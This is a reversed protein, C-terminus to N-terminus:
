LRQYFLMYAQASLVEEVSCSRPTRADDCHCTEEAAVAFSTKKSPKCKLEAFVPVDVTGAADLAYLRGGASTFIRRDLNEEWYVVGRQRM